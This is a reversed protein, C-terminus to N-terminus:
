REASDDRTEREIWGARRWIIMQLPAVLATEEALGLRRCQLRFEIDAYRGIRIANIMREHHNMAAAGRM